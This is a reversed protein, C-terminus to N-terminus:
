LPQNGIKRSHFFFVTRRSHFFTRRAADLRKLFRQDFKLLSYLLDGAIRSSTTMLMKNYTKILYKRHM